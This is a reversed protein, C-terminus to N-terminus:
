SRQPPITARDHDTCQTEDPDEFLRRQVDRRNNAAETAEDDDYLRAQKGTLRRDALIRHVEAPNIRLRRAIERPSYRSAWMSLIRRTAEPSLVVKRKM